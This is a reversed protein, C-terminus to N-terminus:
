SNRRERAVLEAYLEACVRRAAAWRRKALRSLILSPRKLALECLMQQQSTLKGWQRLAMIQDNTIKVSPQSVTKGYRIFSM